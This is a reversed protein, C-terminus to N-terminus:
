IEIDSWVVRRADRLRQDLDTSPRVYLTNGSRNHQDIAVLRREFPVYRAPTFGLDLLRTHIDSDHFGYRAGLGNLEILVAQVSHQSLLGTAGRIVESEFGEVDIKIMVPDWDTAISDLTDVTVTVTGDPTENSALVHNTPGTQTSFALEGPEGGVGICLAEVHAHFRNLYINDLLQEYTAPVPEISLVRAGRGAALISYVGVNAGVDLFMDNECLLHLVFAMDEFEMLGVYINGTAGHMGTGVLLRTGDVFPMAVSAGLLRSGGQWRVIRALTGLRDRRGLPHRLYRRLIDWPAALKV